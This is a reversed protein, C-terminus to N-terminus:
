DDKQADADAKRAADKMRKLLADIDDMDVIEADRTVRKATKSQNAPAIARAAKSAAKAAAKKKNDAM